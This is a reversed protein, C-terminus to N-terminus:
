QQKVKFAYATPTWTREGVQREKGEGKWVVVFTKGVYKPFDEMFISNRSTGFDFVGEPVPNDELMDASPKTLIRSFAIDREKCNIQWYSVPKENGEIERDKVYEMTLFTLEDGIALQPNVGNTRDGENEKYATESVENLFYKKTVKKDM